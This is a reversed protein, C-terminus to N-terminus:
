LFHSLNIRQFFFQAPTGRYMIIKQKGGLGKGLGVYIPTLVSFSFFHTAKEVQETTTPPPPSVFPTLPTGVNSAVEVHVLVIQNSTSPCLFVTIKKNSKADAKLM